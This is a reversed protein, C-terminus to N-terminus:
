EALLPPSLQKKTQEAIVSINVAIAGLLVLDTETFHGAQSHVLTLVGSVRGAKVLPVSIASRSGNNEEWKRRLWRPDQHTNAVLVPQRHEVVWGALGSQLTDLMHEIPYIHVENKYAIAAEIAEGKEDLFLLSGSSAGLVELSTQLTKRLLEDQSMRRNNAQSLSYLKELSTRARDSPLLTKLQEGGNWRPRIADIESEVLNAEGTLPYKIPRTEQGMDRLAKCILHELILFVDEVHENSESPVHLNVDALQGARGRELGTIAVMKAKAKKSQQAAKVVGEANGNWSLTLM